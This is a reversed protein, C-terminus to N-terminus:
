RILVVTGKNTVLQGQECEAEIYWAYTETDAVNQSNKIIGDWGMSPINPAFNKREFVKNGRRNFIMFAKINKYGRTIPYFNENIGNGNPSFATPLLLNGNECAIIISINDSSRCGEASLTKITYTTSQLAIGSPSACNSCNLYNAPEWQYAVVNPSYDPMISFATNYPYIKDPGANVTPLQFVHVKASATDSYCGASDKVLVTYVVDSAPKAVPNKIGPNSISSAPSWSIIGGTNLNYTVTQGLCVSTDKPYVTLQLPGFVKIVSTDYSICGFRNKARAIYSTTTMPYVMTTDCYNCSINTSPLWLLSDITYGTLIATDRAQCITDM